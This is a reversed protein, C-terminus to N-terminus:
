VTKGSKSTVAYKYNDGKSAGKIEVFWIGNYCQMVDVDPNWENFDGVVSVKKANPAWLCFTFNGRLNQHCGFMRYARQAEGTNFLYIDDKLRSITNM